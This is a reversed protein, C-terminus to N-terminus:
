SRRHRRVQRRAEPRARHRDRPRAYGSSRGRSGDDRAVDRGGRAGRRCGVLGAHRRRERVMSGNSRLRLAPSRQRARPMPRNAVPRRTRPRLTPARVGALDVVIRPPDEVGLVKPTLGAEVEFVIRAVTEKYQGTRVRQV